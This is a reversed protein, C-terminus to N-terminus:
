QLHEHPVNLIHAAHFLVSKPPRVGKREYRWLTVYSVGIKKALWARSIGREIRLLELAEM